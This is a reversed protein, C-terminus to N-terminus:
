VAQMWKFEEWFLPKQIMCWELANFKGLHLQQLTYQHPTIKLSILVRIPLLYKKEEEDLGKNALTYLYKIIEYIRHSGLNVDIGKDVIESKAIFVDDPNIEKVFQYLENLNQENYFLGKFLAIVAINLPYPLSDMMRIEIFKKCRIDPFVMSLAHELEEIHNPDFLEKFLTQNTYCDDKFIISQNLLYQAYSKYNFEDSLAQKIIGCRVEDCGDWIQSRICKKPYIESEFFPSNDFFAYFVPSLTNLIRNKQHYDEENEYDICIQTSATQKMMHNPYIGCTKFYEYMYQYRKKPIMTIEDIRSQVQYGTALLVQNKSELIPMIDMVIKKYESDLCTIEKEPRLSIELQSGPELTILQQEKKLGILHNNDYIGEYGKSLLEGLTSLVGEEGEYSIAKLSSKDVIFYEFEAGIKFDNTNKENQRFYAEIVQIQENVL